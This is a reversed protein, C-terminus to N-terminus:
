RTGIAIRDLRALKQEQLTLWPACLPNSGRVWANRIRLDIVRSMDILVKRIDYATSTSFVGRYDTQTPLVFTAVTIESDRRNM